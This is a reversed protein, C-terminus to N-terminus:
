RVGASRLRDEVPGNVQGRAVEPDESRIWVAHYQLENSRRDLDVLQNDVIVSTLIGVATLAGEGRARTPVVIMGSRLPRSPSWIRRALGVNARVIRIAVEVSLMLLSVARRPGLLRWPEGVTGLPACALAVVVALGAGFLLQGWTRTWTLLVWVGFSWVVLATIRRAPAQRGTTVRHGV